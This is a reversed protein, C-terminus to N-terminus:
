ARHRWLLLPGLGILAIGFPEPINTNLASMAMVAAYENATVAVANSGLNRGFNSQLILFDNFDTVGDYNFNGHAFDSAATGFNAQLKLFDNFDVDDDGDTDGPLDYRYAALVPLHDSFSDFASALGAPLSANDYVTGGVSISGNNGLVRYSGPKYDLGVGDLLEGSTLQMDFRDDLNSGPDNTLLSKYAANAHWSGVQGTPDVAQGPGAAAFTRYASTGSGEDAGQWNFDGAFLVNATGLTDADARLIAAQAARQSRISGSSGSQLHVAYVYLDELGSTGVPRFQARLAPHTIGSVTTQSVLTLTATNYVFGTYDGGGDPGTILSTYSGGFVATAAKATKNASDNTRDTEAMALLDLRNGSYAFISRLNSEDTADNPHNGVNWNM